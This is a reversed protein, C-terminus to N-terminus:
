QASFMTGAVSGDGEIILTDKKFDFQKDGDDVYLLAQYRESAVTARLLPVSANQHEGAEFRGAGLIWGKNDRVAVWGMQPLTLSAVSITMGAPQDSVSITEGSSQATPSPPPPPITEDVEQDGGSGSPMLGGASLLLWGGILVAVAAAGWM